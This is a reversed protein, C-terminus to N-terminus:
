CPNIKAHKLAFFLTDGKQARLMKHGQFQKINYNNVFRYKPTLIINRYTVVDIGGGGVQTHTHFSINEIFLILAFHTPSLCTIRVPM